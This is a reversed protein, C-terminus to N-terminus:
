PFEAMYSKMHHQKPQNTWGQVLKDFNAKTTETLVKEFLERLCHLVLGNELLHLAEPPCAATFVGGPSAGYDINYFALWDPSQLMAELRDTEKQMCMQKIDEMVLFNCNDMEKSSYVAPTADCMQCIQKAKKDYYASRGCIGDGGQIDGIIYALPVKLNVIKTQNGLTIKVDNLANEKQAEKFSQLVAEFFANECSNKLDKDM